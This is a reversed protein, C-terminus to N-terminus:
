KNCRRGPKNTLRKRQTHTHARVFSVLVLGLLHVFLYNSADEKARATTHKHATCSRKGQITTNKETLSAIHTYWSAGTSAMAFARPIPAIQPTPEVRKQRTLTM